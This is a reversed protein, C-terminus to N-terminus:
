SPMGVEDYGLIEDASRDDLVPLSACHGAIESLRASLRGQTARRQAQERALRERVAVRVAQTLSEGTLRALERVMEHVEDDKVNLPM